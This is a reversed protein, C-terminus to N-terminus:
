SKGTAGGQFLERWDEASVEVDFKKAAAIIRKWARDREADSVDEVQDFRAIANRVHAADNIPEKRQGPFAFEAAPKRNQRATAIDRGGHVRETNTHGSVLM